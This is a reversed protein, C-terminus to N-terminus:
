DCAKCTTNMLAFNDMCDFCRTANCEKCNASTCKSCGDNKDKFYGEECVACKAPDDIM